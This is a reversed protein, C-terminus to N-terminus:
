GRPRGPSLGAVNSATSSVETLNIGVSVPHEELGGVALSGIGLEGNENGGWAWLRGAATVTSGNIELLGENDGNESPTTSGWWYLFASLNASDLGAFIHQAWTLGSADSSDDWAPDWGDFTSWETEWVPKNWGSLPSAPPAPSSSSCATMTVAVAVALAVGLVPLRRRM